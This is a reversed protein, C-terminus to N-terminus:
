DGLEFDDFDIYKYKEKNRKPYFVEKLKDKSVKWKFIFLQQKGHFEVNFREYLWKFMEFSLTKKSFLVSKGSCSAAIFRETVEKKTVKEEKTDRHEFPYVYHLNRSNVRVWLNCNQYDWKLQSHNIPEPVYTPSPSMVSGLDLGSVWGDAGM